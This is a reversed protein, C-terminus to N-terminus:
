PPVGVGEVKSGPPLRGLGPLIVKFSRPMPTPDYNFGTLLMGHSRLGLIETPPVNAVFLVKKGVADEVDMVYKCESVVVREECGIDVTLQLYKRSKTPVGRKATMEPDDVAKADTIIGVRIDVSEFTSLNVEPKVPPCATRSVAVEATEQHSRVAAARRSVGSEIRAESILRQSFGCLSSFASWRIAGSSRQKHISTSPPGVLPGCHLAASSITSTAM